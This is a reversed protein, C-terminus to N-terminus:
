VKDFVESWIEMGEFIPNFFEPYLDLDKRASNILDGYCGLISAGSNNSGKLIETLQGVAEGGIREKDLDAWYNHPNRRQNLLPAGYTVSYGLRDLVARLFYGSIIDDYRGAFPSVFMAPMCNVMYSTNQTNIPAWTDEALAFQDGFRDRDFSTAEVPRCLRTIADVDPDGLWLGANVAILENIDIIELQPNKWRHEFPFGRPYFAVSSKEVLPDCVNFWGDSSRVAKIQKQEGVIAHKVFFDHDFPFNDDDIRIIVEYGNLYAYLDGYNRRAFSNEPIHNWLDKYGSFVKAQRELDFYEIKIGHKGSVGALFDETEIPTKADGIVIFDVNSNGNKVCLQCFDEILTPVNITTLTVAIRKM